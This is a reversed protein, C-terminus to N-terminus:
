AMVEFADEKVVDPGGPPTLVLNLRGPRSGSIDFSAELTTSNVITVNSGAFATANKELKVSTGAVFGTGTITAVVASTGAKASAPDIGAVTLSSPRTTATTATTTTTTTRTAGALAAVAAARKAPDTASAVSSSGFYFSAVATVLTGLVTILQLGLQEGAPTMSARLTVDFLSDPRQTVDVARAGLALVDATTLRSLVAGTKGGISRFVYVSVMVFIVILFLAIMARISGDPLGLAYKRRSLGYSTFGAAMLYILVMVVSLGLVTVMGMQIEPTDGLRVGFLGTLPIIIMALIIFMAWAIGTPWKGRSGDWARRVVNPKKVGTPSAAM